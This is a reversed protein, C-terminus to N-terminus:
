VIKYPYFIIKFVLLYEKKTELFDKKYKKPHATKHILILSM